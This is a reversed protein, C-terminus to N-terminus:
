SYANQIDYSNFSIHGVAGHFLNRYGPQLFFLYRFIARHRFIPNKKRLQGRPVDCRYSYFHGARRDFNQIRMSYLYFFIMFQIALASFHKNKLNKWISYFLLSLGLPILLKTIEVIVRYAGISVVNFIKWGLVATFLDQFAGRVFLTGSWIGKGNIFNYAPTMEVGEHFTDFYKYTFDKQFFILLPIISFFCITIITTKRNLTDSTLDNISTNNAYNNNHESNKAFIRVLTNKFKSNLSLAFFLVSPLIVFVGWRVSNTM